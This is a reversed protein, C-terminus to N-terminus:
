SEVKVIKIKIAIIKGVKKRSLLEAGWGKGDKTYKEADREFAEWTWKRRTRITREDIFGKGRGSMSLYKIAWYIM